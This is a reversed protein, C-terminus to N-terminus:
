TFDMYSTNVTLDYKEVGPLNIKILVWSDDQSWMVSPEYASMILKHEVSDDTKPEEPLEEIQETDKLETIKVSSKTNTGKKQLLMNMM